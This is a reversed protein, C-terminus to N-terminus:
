GSARVVGSRRVGTEEHAFGFASPYGQRPKIRQTAATAPRHEAVQNLRNEVM